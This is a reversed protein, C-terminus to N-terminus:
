DGRVYRQGARTLAAGALGALLWAPNSALVTLVLGDCLPIAALMWPIVPWAYRGGPASSERRAVFTLVLVYAGQVAGALWVTAAVTGALAFATVAYVLVRAAAMALVMSPHGKHFRDYLAIVALLLAGAALGERHPAVSLCVFALAFLALMVARARAPTIRGAPIPRYRQHVSDHDLDFLDNLAMGGCYFCSLALALLVTSGGLAGSLVAAAAVNSWVTPLNSARCLALVPALTGRSTLTSM